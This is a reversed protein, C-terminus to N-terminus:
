LGKRRRVDELVQQYKIDWAVSGESLNKIRKRVEVDLDDDISTYKQLVPRAIRRIENNDSWVEEVHTTHYLIEILQDTVWDLADDGLAFNYKRAIEKKVRHLSDFELGRKTIVEQAEEHIQRDMDVYSKLVSEIDLQFESVEEPLVEVAKEDMLHKALDNAMVSIRGKYIKM